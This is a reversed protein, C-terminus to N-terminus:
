SSLRREKNSSITSVHFLIPRGKLPLLPKPTARTEPQFRTGFGAALVLAIM